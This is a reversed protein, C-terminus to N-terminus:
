YKQKTKLIGMYIGTPQLGGKDLKACLGKEGAQPLHIRRNQQWGHFVKTQFDWIFQVKHM